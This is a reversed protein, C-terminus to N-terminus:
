DVFKVKLSGLWIEFNFVLDFFVLILVNQFYCKQLQEVVEVDRVVIVIVVDVDFEKGEVFFVEEIFVLMEFNM